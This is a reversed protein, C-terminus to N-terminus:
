SFSFNFYHNCKVLPLVSVEINIKFYKNRFYYKLYMLGFIYMCLTFTFIFDSLRTQNKTVGHVTAGGPEETWPIKWALISSHTAM